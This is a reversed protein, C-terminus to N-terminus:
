IIRDLNGDFLGKFFNHFQFCVGHRCFLLRSQVLEDIRQHRLHDVTLPYVGVQLQPDAIKGVRSHELVRENAANRVGLFHDTCGVVVSFQFWYPYSEWQITMHRFHFTVDYFFTAKSGRILAFSVMKSM